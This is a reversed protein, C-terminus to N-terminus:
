DRLNSSTRTRGYRAAVAKPLAQQQRPLSQNLYKAEAEMKMKNFQREASDRYKAGADGGLQIALDMALRYAILETVMQGFLRVDTVALSYVLRAEVQNTVLVQENSDDLQVDFQVNLQDLQTLRDDTVRYTSSVGGSGPLVYRIRLCDNPYAYAYRWEAPEFEKLAMTITKKNFPWDVLTLVLDRAEPYFIRCQEAQVTQETLAGISKARIRSLAINCIDTETNAM